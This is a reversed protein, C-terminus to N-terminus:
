KQRITKLITEVENQRSASYSIEVAEKFNDQVKLYLKGFRKEKKNYFFVGVVTGDECFRGKQDLVLPPKNESAFTHTVSNPEPAPLTQGFPACFLPSCYRYSMVVSSDPRYKSFVFGEFGIAGTGRYDPPVQITYNSKFVITQWHLVSANEM